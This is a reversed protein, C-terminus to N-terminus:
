KEVGFKYICRSTYKEGPKLRGETIFKVAAFALLLVIGALNPCAMSTGSLRDYSGGTVASLINGGHATIEPKLELTPTAGWSTFQSMDESDPNDMTLQGSGLSVKFKENKNRSRISYPVIQKTICVIQRFNISSLRSLLAKQTILSISKHLGLYRHCVDIYITRTITSATASTHTTYM